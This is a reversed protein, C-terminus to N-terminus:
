LVLLLTFALASTSWLVTYAGSSDDSTYSSRAGPVSDVVLADADESEEETSEEILVDGDFTESSRRADEVVSVIRSLTTTSPRPAATVVVPTTQHRHHNQLRPSTGTFVCGPMLTKTTDKLVRFIVQWAELGCNNRIPLRVCGSFFNLADCMRELKAPMTIGAEANAKEIDGLTEDHCQKVPGSRDLSVLCEASKMFTDYGENCLYGYSSDILSITIHKPCQSRYELVCSDFNRILRCLERFVQGGLKPLQIAQGFGSKGSSASAGEKQNLVKAYEAVPQVCLQIRDNAELPCQALGAAPSLALLLGLMAFLLMMPSSAVLPPM